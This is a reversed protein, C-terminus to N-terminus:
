RRRRGLALLGLAVWAWGGRSASACACVDPKVGGTDAGSGGADGGGGTAGGSDPPSDPASDGAPQSERSDGGSDPPGTDVQAADPELWTPSLWLHEATDAGGDDCGDPGYWIDGDLVIEPLYYAQVAGPDLTTTYLGSGTRVLSVDGGPGRLTVSIVAGDATEPLTVAVDLAREPPYQLEEGMGGLRAGGSSYAIRAPVLPGSTAYVQRQTFADYLAARDFVSGEPLVAVTLGGGYPMNEDVDEPECVAGPSTDHSDTGGAIGFRLADGGPDLGEVVTGYSVCSSWPPDYTDACSMSAGHRSYLEVVPSWTPDDCTYDTPMPKYLAPHHPLLLAPGFRAEIDAMWPWIDDCDVEMADSGSPQGDAVTFDKVEANEGFLILTKHGLERGELTKFHVEAGPLTVMGGEPDYGSLVLKHVAAFDAQDATYGGNTHETSVFFDLGNERAIKVLDTAAGCTGDDCGGLDSSGGDKSAGTHVHIDGLYFSYGEFAEAALSPSGCLLAFLLIAVEWSLCVM